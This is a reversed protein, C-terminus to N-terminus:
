PIDATICSLIRLDRQFRARPFDDAEIEVLARELAGIRPRDGLREVEQRQELIAGIRAGVLAPGIALALADDAAAAGIRHHCESELM